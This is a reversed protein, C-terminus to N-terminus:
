KSDEWGARKKEEQIARKFTPCEPNLADHEDSIKLNYTQIKFMCNVCKKKTAKCETAKHNGACKYCTEDRTCNKAIHYYGWCKFCRKVSIHNFVPCKKWGVNLKEKNLLVEHTKEDAEIIVSGKEKGRRESQNKDNKKEKIIKKVIRMHCEKNVAIKNQKKITDILDNDNM